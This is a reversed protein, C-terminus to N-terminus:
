ICKLVEVGVTLEVLEYMEDRDAAEFPIRFSASTIKNGSSKQGVFDSDLSLPITSQSKSVTLGGM